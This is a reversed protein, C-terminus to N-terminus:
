AESLYRRISIYSSFMGLIMGVGAQLFFLSFFNQKFYDFLNAGSIYSAIKPSLYWLVPCVAISVLIAAVIGYLAGEVIFPGRVFWNSAGVLKMVKIEKRSSYIRLRIANFTVFLAVLALTILIILGAQRITKTLLSLRSIIAENEKYNIKDVIKQYRDKNFFSVITEYQSTNQAKINLSPKLPNSGVEQLSQMLVQNDRHKEKFKVLAEDASVYEAGRVESLKMLENKVTLIDEEPTELNFYVSVDIKDELTAVFSDVLVNSLLLGVIASITLFMMAVAAVSLWKDRWFNTFGAKLIRSFSTFM